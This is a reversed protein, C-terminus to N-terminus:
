CVMLQLIRRIEFYIMIYSLFILSVPDNFAAEFDNLINCEEYTYTRINAFPWDDLQM